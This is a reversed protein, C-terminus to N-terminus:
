VEEPIKYERFENYLKRKLKRAEDGKASGIGQPDFRRLMEHLSTPMNGIVRLKQVAKGRNKGTKIRGKNLTAESQGFRPDYLTKRIQNCEDIAQARELKRLRPATRWWLSEIARWRQISGPPLNFILDVIKRAQQHRQAKKITEKDVTGSAIPIDPM